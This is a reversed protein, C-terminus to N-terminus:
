INVGKAPVISEAPRVQRLSLLLWVFCSAIRIGADRSCSSRSCKGPGRRQGTHRGNSVFRCSVAALAPTCVTCQHIRAASGAAQAGGPVGPVVIDVVAGFRCRGAILTKTAVVTISVKIEKQRAAAM